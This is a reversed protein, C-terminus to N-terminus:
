RQTEETDAPSRLALEEIALIIGREIIAAKSLQYAGVQQAAELKAYLEDTVRVSILHTKTRDRM